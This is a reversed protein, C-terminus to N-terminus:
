VVKGEAGSWWWQHSVGTEKLEEGCGKVAIAFQGFQGNISRKRSFSFIAENTSALTLMTSLPALKAVRAGKSYHQDFLLLGMRM